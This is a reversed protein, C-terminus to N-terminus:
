EELEGKMFELQARLFEVFNDAKQIFAGGPDAYVVAMEGDRDQAKPCFYYISGGFDTGFHLMAPLFIRADRENKKSLDFGAEYRAISDATAPGNKEEWAKKWRGVTYEIEKLAKDTHGGTVGILTSADDFKEWGNHLRLFARYSPPFRMGIRAECAAIDSESAPPHLTGPRTIGAQRSVKTFVDYLSQVLEELQQDSIM